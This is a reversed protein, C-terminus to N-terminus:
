AAKKGYDVVRVFLDTANKAVGVQIVRNGAGPLATGIGGTAQLYYGAGVTAGSIVNVAPGHNVITSNNGVVAQATEAVGVVRAKADTDARSKQVRDNTGGFNVADGVAIAENVAYDAAVRSAPAAGVKLQGSGDFTITSGDVKVYLGSGDTALGRTTDEKVGLENSVIELSPNVAELNVAVGSANKVIAGGSYLKVGLENAVIQLSPNSAELKIAIGDAARQMAGTASVAVRLEGSDGAADFELGSSGGGTGAGTAGATTDLDVSWTNASDV